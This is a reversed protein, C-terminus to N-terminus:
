PHRLSDQHTMSERGVYQLGSQCRETVFSSGAHSDKESSSGGGELLSLAGKEVGGEDAFDFFGPPFGPCPFIM